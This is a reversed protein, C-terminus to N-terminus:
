SARILLTVTASKCPSTRSYKWFAMMAVDDGVASYGRNGRVLWGGSVRKFSVIGGLLRLPTPPNAQLQQGSETVVDAGTQM